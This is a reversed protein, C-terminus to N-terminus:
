RTNRQNENAGEFSHFDDEVKLGIYSSANPQWIQASSGHPLLQRMRM